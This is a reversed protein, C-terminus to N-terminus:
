SALECTLYMVIFRVELNPDASKFLAEWQKETRQRANHMTMVTLDRRRYPHAAHADMSGYTPSIGDSVLLTVEPAKQLVPVFAKLIKVAEQDSKNWFVGRLIYALVTSADEDPRPEAPARAEFTIRDQLSAPLDKRGLDILHKASDEM